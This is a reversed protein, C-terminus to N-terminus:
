PREEEGSLRFVVGAGPRRERIVFGSITLEGLAVQAAQYNMRTALMIEGITYAAQPDEAARRCLHGLVRFGRVSLRADDIEPPIVMVPAPATIEHSGRCAPRHTKITVFKPRQAPSSM